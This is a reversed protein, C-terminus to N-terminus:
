VSRPYSGIVKVERMKMRLCNLAIQINPEDAYGDIDMFFMYDGLDRKMPRSQVMTLNVGAFFLESLIMQLTGPRDANMFLALTSKGPGDHAVPGKGIIVFRTQSSLNDEIAEEYVDVGVIKAALTSAIAAISKDAAAMEAAAATSDALRLQRGPLNQNIWRRCQGIGQTHSAICVVDEFSADPHLLLSQHIDIAIEGLIEARSTFALADLVATVSGKLSNEIPVVGYDAKGGSSRRSCRLYRTAPCRSTISRCHGASSWSRAGGYGFVNGHSWSIRLHVQTAVHHFVKTRSANVPCELVAACPNNRASGRM